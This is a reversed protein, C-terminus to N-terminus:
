ESGLLFKSFHSQKTPVCLVCCYNGGIMSRVIKYKMWDSLHM